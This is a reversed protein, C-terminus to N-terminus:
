RERSVGGEVGRVVGRSWEPPESTTLKWDREGGPRRLGRGRGFRSQSRGADSKPDDGDRNELCSDLRQSAQRMVEQSMRGEDIAAM